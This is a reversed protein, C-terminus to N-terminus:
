APTTGDRRLRDAEALVEDAHTPEPLDPVKWGHSAQWEVIRNRHVTALAILALDAHLSTAAKIWADMAALACADQGRVLIVPEDDPILGAPDQIRDYDPRAHRM